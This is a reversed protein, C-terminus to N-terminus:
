IDKAKFYVFQSIKKWDYFSWLDTTSSGPDAITVKNATTDIVAVWHQGTDGLVELALYYNSSQYKNILQYKEAKTKDKLDVRGVFSFSPIFKTIAEYQLNGKEDFGGNENMKQVFTQPTFPIITKGAGSREILISISTALCGIEGITKGSTGIPTSAWAEDTQKWNIYDGFNAGYLLKSLLDSYKNSLLERTNKKQEDTFRYQNMIDDVSKSNITVHIITKSKETKAQNNPPSNITFLDSNSVVYGNSSAKSISVINFDNFVNRINNVNKENIYMIVDANEKDNSYKVSYVAIVEKWNTVTSDVVIESNPTLLQEREAKQYIENNIQSIVSSMTRGNSENSFFIGFFSSCLLGILCILIVVILAIVGGTGLLAVLSKVGAILVKTSAIIAKTIKKAITATTKITVQAVQKSKIAFERAREINKPINKAQKVTQEKIEKEIDNKIKSKKKNKYNDVMRDKTKTFIKNSGIITVNKSKDVMFEIKNDAYEVNSTKDDNIMNSRDRIDSVFDKVNSTWVVSKDITKVGTKIKEKVKIDKM